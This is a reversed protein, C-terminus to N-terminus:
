RLPGLEPAPKIVWQVGLSTPPVRPHIGFPPLPYGRKVMSGSITDGSAPLPGYIFADEVNTPNVTPVLALGVAMGPPQQIPDPYYNTTCIRYGPSPKGTGPWKGPRTSIELSAGGDSPGRTGHLTFSAQPDRLDTYHGDYRLTGNANQHGEWCAYGAQGGPQRMLLIRLTATMDVAADWEGTSQHDTGHFTFQIDWDQVKLLSKPQGATSPSRFLILVALIVVLLTRV